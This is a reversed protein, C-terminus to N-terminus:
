ARRGRTVPEDIRDPITVQTEKGSKPPPGSSRISVGLKQRAEALGKSALYALLDNKRDEANVDAIARKESAIRKAAVHVDGALLFAARHATLEVGRIFAALDVRGGKADIAKAAKALDERESADLSKALDARLESVGENEPIPIEPVKYVPELTCGALAVM